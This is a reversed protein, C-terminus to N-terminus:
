FWNSISDLIIIKGSKVTNENQYNFTFVIHLSIILSLTKFLQTIENPIVILVYKINSLIGNYFFEM